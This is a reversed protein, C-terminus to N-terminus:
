QQLAAAPYEGEPAHINRTDFQRQNQRWKSTWTAISDLHTQLKTTATNINAHRALVATDDAYTSM